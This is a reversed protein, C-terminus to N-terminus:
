EGIRYAIGDLSMWSVDQTITQSTPFAFNVIGSPLVQAVGMRFGWALLPVVRGTVPRIAAPLNAFEYYTTASATFTGGGGRYIVGSLIVLNDPTVSYRPPNSASGYWGGFAAVSGTRAPTGVTARLRDDAINTNTVSSQGAAVTVRALPIASAPVAPTGSGTDQLVEIAWEYGSWIGNHMKDKVRAVVRHTRSGSGPPLPITRNEVATSTCQYAGQDSVDDGFIACEGAAVDVSFNAGAGRQAVRLHNADYDLVGERSFIAKLTRRDLAASYEIAPDSGTAQMWAPRLLAM